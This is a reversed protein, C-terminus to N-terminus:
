GLSFVSILLRVLIIVKLIYLILFVIIMKINDTRNDRLRRSSNERERRLITSEERSRFNFRITMERLRPRRLFLLRSLSRKTRTSTVRPSCTFSRTCKLISKVRLETSESFDESPERDESGFSKRHCEPM